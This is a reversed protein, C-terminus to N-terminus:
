ADNLANAHLFAFFGRLHIQPVPFGATGGVNASSRGSKSEYENTLVPEFIFSCAINFLRRLL